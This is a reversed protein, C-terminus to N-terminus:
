EEPLAYSVIALSAFFLALLFQALKINVNDEDHSAGVHAGFEGGQCCFYMGCPVSRSHDLETLMNRYIYPSVTVVYEPPHNPNYFSNESYYLKGAKSNTYLLNEDAVLAMNEGVLSPVMDYEKSTERVFKTDRTSLMMNSPSVVTGVARASTAVERFSLVGEDGDQEEDGEIIETSGYLPIADTLPLEEDGPTEDRFSTKKEGSGMM